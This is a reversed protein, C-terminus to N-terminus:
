EYRLAVMPDVRTARKAPIWSALLGVVLIMLVVAGFVTPDRPEVEFMIIAVMRSVGWALALGLGLGIGIQSVGQRLILRMVQQGGAGLAMRIGMENVRRSVSFALVGYLGVSAMLLAAVGFIIFIVGFIQFFWGNVEVVEGISRVQYIPLDADVAQVAQRVDSTIAMPDGNGAPRVALSVFRADRQAVPVYYGSPDGGPQGVPQFGAMDMDPVVGVISIWPLTDHVPGEQFRQGIPSQGEFFRQVFSENVIAVRQADREDLRSFDRGELPTVGFLEFFGPSVLARHVRPQDSTEAYVQGDLAVRLQPTFNTPLADTLGAGQVGPIAELRQVMDEFFAARSAEDPYDAEFLGVRATFVHETDFAYDRQSLKVISKTMLGAGVLLACSLAVEGIVLIKSLRRMVFSSSGRSEDKLISSVDARAVQIAPAAGAALATLATLGLVFGLIPLDVAFVMWGPRGTVSPDTVRDFIEVGAFAIVIGIAAGVAALVLAEAFFPLMVRLRGGGIASRVAAEKSRMAARALLLNAVNACAVLLVLIVAGMMAGFITVLQPGTQSEIVTQMGAGLNENSDPHEQQLQTAIRSLDMLAQDDTVNPNLRGLVQFARGQGRESALPDERMGVWLQANNPFEFGEPMVGVVTGLEGNITVSEGLVGPDGEFRDQWIDYGLITAPPSGVTTEEPLLTRGLVPQVRVLDLFNATVFAGSFREPGDTGSINITGSWHGALGEFTSQRELYDHYDQVSLSQNFTQPDTLDTHIVVRLREAEPVDLGRFFVGYVISFMFTSLGIGLALVLVSVLASGPKKLLSRAGFKLDKFVTGMDVERGKQATVRIEHILAQVREAPSLSGDRLLDSEGTTPSTWAYHAGIRLAHFWYWLAPPTRGGDRRYDLLEERADGLISDGVVGRPLWWRLLREALGPPETHETKM